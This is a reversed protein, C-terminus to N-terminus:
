VTPDSHLSHVASFEQDNASMTAPPTIGGAVKKNSRERHGRGCLAGRSVSRLVKRNVSKMGSATRTIGASLAICHRFAGRFVRSDILARHLV